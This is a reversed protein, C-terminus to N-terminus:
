NEFITLPSVVQNPLYTDGINNSVPTLPNYVFGGPKWSPPTSNFLEYNCEKVSESILALNASYWLDMGIDEFANIILVIIAEAYSLPVFRARIYESVDILIGNGEPSLGNKWNYSVYKGWAKFSRDM